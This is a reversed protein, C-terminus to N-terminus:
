TNTKARKYDERIVNQIASIGSAPYTPHTKKLWEFLFEAEAKLTVALKCAEAREHLKALYLSKSSPRGALGSKVTEAELNEPGAAVSNPSTTNAVPAPAPLENLWPAVPWRKEQFLNLLPDRPVWLRKILALLKRKDNSAYVLDIRTFRSIAHDPDAAGEIICWPLENSGLQFNTFIDRGCLASWMEASFLTAKGDDPTTREGRSNFSALWDIAARLPVWRRQRKQKEKFRLLQLTKKRRRALLRDVAADHDFDDQGRKPEPEIDSNLIAGGCLAEAFYLRRRDL